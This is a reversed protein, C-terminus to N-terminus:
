IHMFVHVLAKDISSKNAKTIIEPPYREKLFDVDTFSVGCYIYTFPSTYGSFVYFLIKQFCQM